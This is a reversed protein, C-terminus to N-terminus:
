KVSVHVCVCACACICFCVCFCVCLCVCARVCWLIFYYPSGFGPYLPGRFRCHCQGCNQAYRFVDLVRAGPAHYSLICSCLRRRSNYTLVCAETCSHLTRTCRVSGGAAPRRLAGADQRADCLAHAHWPQGIVTSVADTVVHQKHVLCALWRQQWHHITPPLQMVDVAAPPPWILCTMHWCAGALPTSCCAHKTQARRYWRM